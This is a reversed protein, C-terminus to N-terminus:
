ERDDKISRLFERRGEMGKTGFSGVYEEGNEFNIAEFKQRIRNFGNWSGTLAIPFINQHEKSYEDLWGVLKEEIDRPEDDPWSKYEKYEGSWLVLEKVIELFASWAEWIDEKKHLKIPEPDLNWGPVIERFKIKSVAKEAARLLEEYELCWNRKEFITGDDAMYVRKM